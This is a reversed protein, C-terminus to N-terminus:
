RDPRRAVGSCLGDQNKGADSTLLVDGDLALVVLAADVVDTM